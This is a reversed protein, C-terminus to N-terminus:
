THLKKSMPEVTFKTHCTSCHVRPECFISLCVSCVFGIDLVKKHCFCTARFDVNAQNPTNLHKRLNQDPFLSMMLYQLLGKPNDVKLYIGGTADAAQELFLTGGEINCVNIPINKKQACFICNMTPIYQLAVDGTLSFILIRSRLTNKNQVQNIYALARSLAGSIMTKRSVKDTSSMLRKMGSLVLDDVERFKRYTNAEKTPDVEAVKQEPAISPYLYEVKDSHSALVAVRNDHHFALHANLFVTIDALVKSVPVKKSLSYWSAPNADLIVVLLSPTDNADESIDWSANQKLTQFEDM